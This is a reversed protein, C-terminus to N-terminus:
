ASPLRRTRPRSLHAGTPRSGRLCLSPAQQMPTRWLSGLPCARQGKRAAREPRHTAVLSIVRSIPVDHDAVAVEVVDGLTATRYATAFRGHRRPCRNARTSAAEASALAAASSTSCRRRRRMPHDAAYPPGVSRRWVASADCDNATEVTRRWADDTRHISQLTKLGSLGKTRTGYPEQSCTLDNLTRRSKPPKRRAM